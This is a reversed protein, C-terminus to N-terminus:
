CLSTFIPHLTHRARKRCHFNVEDSAQNQTSSSVYKQQMLYILFNRIEQEGMENPHRKHHFLIFRKIWQVYSDETSKSLHKLRAVERVQNLLKSAMTDEKCSTSYL